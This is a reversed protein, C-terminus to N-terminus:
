FWVVVFKSVLFRLGSEGGDWDTWSFIEAGFILLQALTMLSFGVIVLWCMIRRFWSNKNICKYVDEESMPFFSNFKKKRKSITYVVTPLCHVLFHSYVITNLWYLMTKKKLKKEFKHIETRFKQCPWLRFM